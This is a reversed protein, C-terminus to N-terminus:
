NRHNKASGDRCEEVNKSFTKWVQKIIVTLFEHHRWCACLTHVYSFRGFECVSLHSFGMVPSVSPFHSFCLNMMNWLSKKKVRASVIVTTIACIWQLNYRTSFWGRNNVIEQKHCLNRIKNEWHGFFFHTHAADKSWGVVACPWVVCLFMKIGDNGKHMFSFNALSAKNM